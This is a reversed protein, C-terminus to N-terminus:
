SPTWIINSKQEPPELRVPSIEKFHDNRFPQQLGPMLWIHGTKVMRNFGIAWVPHQLGTYLPHVAVWYYGENLQEM